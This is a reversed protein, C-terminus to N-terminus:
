SLPNEIINISYEIPPFDNNKIITIWYNEKNRQAEIVKNERNQIVEFGRESYFSQITERIFDESFLSNSIIGILGTRPNEKSPTTIFQNTDLTEALEFTLFHLIRHPSVHEQYEEKSKFVIEKKAM